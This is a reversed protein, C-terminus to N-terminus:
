KKRTLIGIEPSFHVVKFYGYVLDPSELYLFRLVPSELYFLPSSFQFCCWM